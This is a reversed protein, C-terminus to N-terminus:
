VPANPEVREAESEAEPEFHRRTKPDALRAFFAPDNRLIDWDYEARMMM